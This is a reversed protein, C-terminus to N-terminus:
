PLFYCKSFGTKNFIPNNYKRCIDACKKKTKKRNFIIHDIKSSVVFSSATYKKTLKTKGRENQEINKKIQNQ